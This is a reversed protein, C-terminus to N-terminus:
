INFWSQMHPTFGVQDDYTIRKICQQIANQQPNKCRMLFVPIYNEKRPNYKEANPVPRMSHSLNKRNRNELFSQSNSLAFM